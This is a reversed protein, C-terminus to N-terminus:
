VVLYCVIFIVFSVFWVSTFCFWLAGFDYVLYELLCDFLLVLRWVVYLGFDSILCQLLCIFM